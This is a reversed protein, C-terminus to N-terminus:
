TLRMPLAPIDLLLLLLLLAGEGLSGEQSFKNPCSGSLLRRANKGSWRTLALTEHTSLGTCVHM